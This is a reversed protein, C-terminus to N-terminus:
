EYINKLNDLNSQITDFYGNKEISNWLPDLIYLELQYDSTLTEILKSEFQPEKFITKVDRQNIEDIIIKM